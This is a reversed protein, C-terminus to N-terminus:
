KAIRFWKSPTGHDDFYVHTDNTVVHWADGSAIKDAPGGAKPIRWIGTNTDLNPRALYVHTMDLTMQYTDARVLETVLVLESPGSATKPLRYVQHKNGPGLDRLLYIDTCDVAVHVAGWPLGAPELVLKRLQTGDVSYAMVSDAGKRVVYAFQDDAAMSAEAFDPGEFLREPLTGSPHFHRLKGNSLIWFAVAGDPLMQQPYADDYDNRKPTPSCTQQACTVSNSWLWAKNGSYPRSLWFAMDDQVVLGVTNSGPAQAVTRVATGQDLARAQISGSANGDRHALSAWYLSDGYLFPAFSYLHDTPNAKGLQAFEIKGCPPSCAATSGRAIRACERGAEGADVAATGTDADGVAADVPPPTPVLAAADAAADPM